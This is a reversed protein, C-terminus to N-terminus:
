ILTTDLPWFEQPSISEVPQGHLTTSQFYASVGEVVAAALETAAPLL